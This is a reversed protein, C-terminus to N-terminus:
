NFSNFKALSFEQGLFHSIYNSQVDDAHQSPPFYFFIDFHNGNLQLTIFWNKENRKKFRLILYIEKLNRLLLFSMM